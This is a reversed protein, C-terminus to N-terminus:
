SLGSSGPRHQVSARHRCDDGARSCQSNLRQREGYFGRLRERTMNLGLGHKANWDPNPSLGPGNDGVEIHLVQDRLFSTIWVKGGEAGVRCAM